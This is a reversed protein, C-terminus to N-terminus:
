TSVQSEECTRGFGHQYMAALLARPARGSVDTHLPVTVRRTQRAGGGDAFVSMIRHTNEAKRARPKASVVCSSVCCCCFLSSCVVLIPLTIKLPLIVVTKLASRRRASLSVAATSTSCTSRVASFGGATPLTASTTKPRHTTGKLRRSLSSLLRTRTCAAADFEVDCRQVPIRSSRPWAAAPSAAPRSGESGRTSTSSVLFTEM